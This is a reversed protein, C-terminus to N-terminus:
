QINFTFQIHIMWLMEYTQGVRHPMEKQIGNKDM